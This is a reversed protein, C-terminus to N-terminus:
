FGTMLNPLHVTLWGVAAGVIAVWILFCCECDDSM